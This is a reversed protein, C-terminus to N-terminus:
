TRPRSGQDGAATAPGPPASSNGLADQDELAHLAKLAPTLDRQRFRAMEEFAKNAWARFDELKVDPSIPPEKGDVVARMAVALEVLTRKEGLAQLATRYNADDPNPAMEGKILDLPPAPQPFAAKVLAMEHISLERLTVTKGCFTATATRSEEYLDKLSVM